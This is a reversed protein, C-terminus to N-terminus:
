KNNEDFYQKMRKAYVGKPVTGSWKRAITYRNFSKEGTLEPHYLYLDPLIPKGTLGGSESVKMVIPYWDPLKINQQSDNQYLKILAARNLMIMHTDTFASKVSDFRMINRVGKCHPDLDSYIYIYPVLGNESAQNYQSKLYVRIDTQYDYNIAWNEPVVKPNLEKADLQSAFNISIFIGLLLVQSFLSRIKFFFDIVM